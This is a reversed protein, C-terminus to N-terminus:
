RHCTIPPPATPNAIARCNAARSSLLVTSISRFPRTPSSVLERFESTPVRGDRREKPDPQTKAYLHYVCTQVVAGIGEFGFEADFAPLHHIREAFFM